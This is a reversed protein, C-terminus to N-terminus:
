RCVNVDRVVYRGWGDYFGRHEVFCRPGYGWGYGAARWGYGAPRWGEHWGREARWGDHEGWFPQASAAVPAALTLAAAGALIITKFTM